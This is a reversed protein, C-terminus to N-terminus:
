FNTLSREHFPLVGMRLGLTIEHTTFQAGVSRNTPLEFVYGLRFKESFMTQLIVGYTNLNRTFVGVQHVLNLNLNLAVDASLPAGKVGRLLVSPKFRLRENMIHVYSGFLYFHQNYLEFQQGGSNVKSPLMRPVSLGVIFKEGMLTVGTGVNVSSTRTTGEPFADDGGDRINLSNNDTKFGLMGGQMGFSFTTNNQLKLKYAFVANFETITTNGIKDQLLSLGAGVKNDVLSVSGNLSLTKPSAELGM